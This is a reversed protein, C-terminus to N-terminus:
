QADSLKIVLLRPDLTIFSFVECVQSHLPFPEVFHSKGTTRKTSHLKNKESRTSDLKEHGVAAILLRLKCSSDVERGM